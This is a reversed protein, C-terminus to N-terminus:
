FEFVLGELGGGDSGHDVEETALGAPHVGEGDDVFLLQVDVLAQPNAVRQLEGILLNDNVHVFDLLAM